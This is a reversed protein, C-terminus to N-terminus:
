GTRRGARAIEAYRADAVLVDAECNGVVYDADDKTWRGSLPTFRRGTWTTGRYVSLFEPTNALLCAVSGRAPVDVSDLARGFRAAGAEVDANRVLHIPVTM